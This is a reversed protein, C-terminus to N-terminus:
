TSENNEGKILKLVAWVYMAIDNTIYCEAKKVLYKNDKHLIITKNETLKYYPNGVYLYKNGKGLNHYEGGIHLKQRYRLPEIFAKTNIKEDDTIIQITDGYQEISKIVANSIKM